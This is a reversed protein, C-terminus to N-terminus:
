NEAYIQLNSDMKGLIPIASKHTSFSFFFIIIIIIIIIVVVVYPFGFASFGGCNHIDM